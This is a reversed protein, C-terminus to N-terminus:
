GTVTHRELVTIRDPMIWRATMFGDWSDEVPWDGEHLSGDDWVRGPDVRVALVAVEDGEICGMGMAGAGAGHVWYGLADDRSWTLHTGPAIGHELITELNVVDTVHYLTCPDLVLGEPSTRHAPPYGLNPYYGAM